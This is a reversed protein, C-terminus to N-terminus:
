DDNHNGEGQTSRTEPTGLPVVHQGENQIPCSRRVPCMSCMTNPVATFTNSRMVGVTEKVLDKAWNEERNTIPPQDRLTVSKTTPAVFVLGAGDSEHSNAFQGDLVALQYIGLQANVEADAKTPVSKGTKLDAIRVKGDVSVEVRDVIGGIKAGEVEVSFPQEVLVQDIGSSATLLNYQSLKELMRRAIDYQRRAPWGDPLRLEPWRRELEGALEAFRGLPYEAAIAHILTGVSQSLGASPTGGATELSWRLACRQISEVRSPSLPVLDKDQYLPTPNTLELAGYWSRPQAAGVDQLALLKLLKARHHATDLDNKELAAVLEARALSTLGRLDLPIDAVTAEAVMETTEELGADPGNVLNLFVSPENEEDRVATVILREQARSVALAFARLEDYFVEKRADPGLGRATQSRGSIVEVLTQAGMLSDRLRLDPWQGEQVGAIVVIKWQRGAAGPPTVLSVKGGLAMQASLSDAPIDQSEIFAVFDLASAEPLRDVYTEAARFLSMVADLDRDARAAATSGSIAIQQWPGSLGSADWVAWLVTQATAGAQQLALRGQSLVRAVRSLPKGVTGISSSWNPDSLAELILEDSTRGGGGRLEEGRLARRLKRLMIADAGGIVSTLLDLAREIDLEGDLARIAQLLPRVAPEDRLPIDTGAVAVPVGKQGLARRMALLQGGSRAVVAMDTWAVGDRLHASRLLRAIHSMELAPTELVVCEVASPAGEESVPANGIGQTQSASGAHRHGVLGASAIAQTVRKVAGRVATDGRYSTSLVLEQAGFQGLREQDVALTEPQGAAAEALFTPRAGRFGQVAVDPDGLLVLRTGHRRLITLLRATAATTEQYDDVILVDWSPRSESSWSALEIAADDIIQAPDYRRGADAALTAFQTTMQYDRLVSAAAQWEARQYRMGLDQLDDPDVGNEACRMLLDRLEARFGRLGLTEPPISEPWSPALLTGNEYGELLQALLHDQEPGTILRLIPERRGAAAATLISFALAAPTRVMAGQVPGQLRATVANRLEGASRRTGSLVIIKSADVGSDVLASVLEISLTTKGTGPAGAVSVVPVRGVAAEIVAQQSDDLTVVVSEARAPGIPPLLKM